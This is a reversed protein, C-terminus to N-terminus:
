RAAKKLTGIVKGKIKDEPLFGWVRSDNANDRNDGLVFFYNQKIVYTPTLVSNIFISDSKIELNNKEFEGILMSYLNINLTDLRLTDNKKPIYLKGYYDRNWAFNENSPFCNEDYKGTKESKLEVSKINPNRRVDESQEFTLSFSYEHKDSVPGGETLKHTLMFTTDLMAAQSTVIYNHKLSAFDSISKSNVFIKKNIIEVTDGPEGIIRQIFTAGANEDDSVPYEILVVNGKTYSTFMKLVAVADGYQYTNQMDYNNVRVIDFFFKRVVFFIVLAVLASVFWNLKKAIGILQVVKNNSERNQTKSPQEM